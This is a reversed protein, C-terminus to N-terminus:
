LIITIPEGGAETLLIQDTKPLYSVTHLTGFFNAYDTYFMPSNPTSFWKHLDYVQNLGAKKSALVSLRNTSSDTNKRNFQKMCENQFMNVCHLVDDSQLVESGFPSAEVVAFQGSRDLLSYNYSAAHPMSQLLEISEEVTSCMELVIRVIMSCLFGKEYPDNNVFHLGVVLGEHNMGDLRGILFQANGCIRINGNMQKIFLRDYVAPSFDYNRVYYDSTMLSTCGMGRFEPMGFGSFLRLAMEESIELGEEIGKLEDLLQPCYTHLMEKIERADQKYPGLYQLTKLIHQFSNRVLKGLYFGNERYCNTLNIKEIIISKM